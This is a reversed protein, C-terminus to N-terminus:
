KSEVLDVIKKFEQFDTGSKGMLFGNCHEIQKLYSVNSGDVSGGYLFMWGVRETAKHVRERLWTFITNLHELTPISGTGISWIPEYALVVPTNDAIRARRELSSLIPGVQEELVSLTSQQDYEEKTEGICIIPTVGYDLLHAMKRAVMQSTEGNGMRRESHGVICHSCGAEDLSTASVHGTFPGNIHESCDQAGISVNTEKFMKVLPYLSVFDSCLVIERDSKNALDILDDYSSSAFHLAEDLHFRMKWNAVFLNRKEM